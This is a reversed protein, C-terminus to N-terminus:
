RRRGPSTLGTNVAAVLGERTVLYLIGDAYAPTRVISGPIKFKALPTLSGQGPTLLYVGGSTDCVIMVTRGDGDVTKVIGARVPAGVRLSVTEKGADNGSPSDLSEEEMSGLIDGGGPTGDFAFTENVQLDSKPNFLKLKKLYPNDSMSVTDGHRRPPSKLRSMGRM